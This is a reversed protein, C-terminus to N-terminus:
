YRFSFHPVALLLHRHDVAHQKKDLNQDIELSGKFDYLHHNPVDAQLSGVSDALRFFSPLDGRIQSLQGLTMKQTDLCAPVRPKLNTERAILPTKKQKLKGM